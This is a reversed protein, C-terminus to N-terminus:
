SHRRCFTCMGKMPDYDSLKYYKKTDGTDDYAKLFSGATGSYKRTKTWSLYRYDQLEKIIDTM